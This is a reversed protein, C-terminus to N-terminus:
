EVCAYALVKLKTVPDLDEVSTKCHPLPPARTRPQMRALPAGVWRPACCATAGPEGWGGRGARRGLHQAVQQVEDAVVGVVLVRRAQLPDHTNPCLPRRCLAHARWRRMSRAHKSAARPRGHRPVAGLGGRVSGGRRARGHGALDDNEDQHPARAGARMRRVRAGGHGPEPCCRAAHRPARLSPIPSRWRHRWGGGGPRRRLDLDDDAQQLQQAQKTHKLASAGPTHTCTQVHPSAAARRCASRM